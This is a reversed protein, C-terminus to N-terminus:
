QWSSHWISWKFIEPVLTEPTSKPFPRCAIVWPTLKVLESISVPDLVCFLSATQGSEAPITIVLTLTVTLPPFASTAAFVAVVVL